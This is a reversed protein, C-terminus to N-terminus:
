ATHEVTLKSASSGSSSNLNGDGGYNASVSYTGVALATNAIKLDGVSTGEHALDSLSGIMDQLERSQATSLEQGGFLEESARQRAAAETQDTQDIGDTM